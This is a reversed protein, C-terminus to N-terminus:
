PSPFGAGTNADRVRAGRRSLRELCKRLLIADIGLPTHVLLDGDFDADACRGTASANKRSHFVNAHVNRRVRQERSCIGANASAEDHEGGVVGAHVGRLVLLVGVVIGASGM